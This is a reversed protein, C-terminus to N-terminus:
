CLLALQIQQDKLVNPFHSWALHMHSDFWDFSYSHNTMGFGRSFGDDGQEREVNDPYPEVPFKEGEARAHLPLLFILTILTAATKCM